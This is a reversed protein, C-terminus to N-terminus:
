FDDVMFPTAAFAADLQAGAEPTGGSALGSMHLTAVSVGAYLAAIGRPGLTLPDPSSLSGNPIMTGKGDAVTLLWRGANAPRAWDNTRMPVSASVGPPFGRAAIAAPVDVVRLMWMARRSITADREATLWWFPDGPATWGRVTRTVSANSAIVSWLARLAQPTTAHVREVWLERTDGGAWRYAAFGDGEEVGAALYAYLDPRELWQRAPGEDWTIPGADRAALHSRGIANIVRSVDDPTARTIRPTQQSETAAQPDPPQLERLSRAAITFEHKAGALEWGLSRYIPVTAPYLASLPYGRDAILGLLETMLQRGIGMGRHEPAVKVSAVGACDVPNGLWYQRMDHLMAAGAPVGGAFAGLFLGESARLRAVRLWGEKQQTSYVGFARQGLDLQADFDDDPTIPRIEVDTM